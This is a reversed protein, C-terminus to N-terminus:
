GQFINCGMHFPFFYHIFSHIFTSFLWLLARRDLSKAKKELGSLVQLKVSCSSVAILSTKETLPSQRFHLGSLSYLALFNGMLSNSRCHSVNALSAIKVHLYKYKSFLIKFGSSVQFLTRGETVMCINGM